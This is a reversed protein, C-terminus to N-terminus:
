EQGIRPLSAFQALAAASARDPALARGAGWATAFAEEGLTARPGALSQEVAARDVPVLPAGAADRLAAAAGGLQAAAAPQELAAAVAALGELCAAIGVTNGVAQYRDLGEVYLASAREPDGEDRAVHGLGELAMPLDRKDDLEEYLALCEEFMATAGAYDGQDRAVKGLADLALTMCWKHGMPQALAMSEEALGVARAQDGLDRALGALNALQIAISSTDGVARFRALSEEALAVAREHDGRRHALNALNGLVSPLGWPDDLERRLALSEEYLATAGAYECHEFAINGLNGLTTAVGLTDGLERRLALSEEYLATAEVFHGQDSAVNGLSNLAQSMGVTDDLVRWLALSQETLTQARVFDGQRYALTGAGYLAKARVPAAGADHVDLALLSELRGRGESLHGRLYWYRSLAGALRLGLLVEGAERTWGLAARMNDHEGDLRALWQAQARGKLEPEAREALELAYAAHQRRLAAAELSAELCELGYERITELMRFRREGGASEVAQLLSNDVLATLGELPDVGLDGDPNCVAEAAELTCGGAFASLRRFLRQEAGALLDYSWAIANRMTQQRAPLDRPGGTLLDLRRALRALLAQLSLIKIRAAALEIALPLGDLHRCIDAVVPADPATLAFDPRVAQARQRFLEVAPSIGPMGAPSSRPASSPAAADPLALPLVPVEHEGRLRLPARSTVLLKVGACTALLEVVLPAAALLHEFNDLLLLLCRQRLHALLSARIPQDGSERLDLTRAITSAVLEPNAIAALEVLCSGEVFEQQLDAAAQLGLRTKGVGGPGTLTLLRV